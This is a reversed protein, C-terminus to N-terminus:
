LETDWFFGFGWQMAAEKTLRGVIGALPTPVAM